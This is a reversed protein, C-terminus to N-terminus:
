TAARQHVQTNLHNNFFRAHRLFSLPTYDTELFDIGCAWLWDSNAYIGSKSRHAEIFEKRGIGKDYKHYGRGTIPFSCPQKENLYFRNGKKSVTHSMVYFHCHKCFIRKEDQNFFIPDDPHTFSSFSDTYNRMRVLSEQTERLMRENPSENSRVLKELSPLIASLREIPDNNSVRPNHYGAKAAKASKMFPNEMASMPRKLFVSYLGNSVGGLDVNPSKGRFNPSKGKPSWNQLRSATWTGPLKCHFGGVDLLGLMWLQLDMGIKRKTSCFYGKEHANSDTHKKQKSPKNWTKGISRNLIIMLRHSTLAASPDETISKVVCVMCLSGKEPISNMSNVAEEITLSPNEKLFCTREPTTFSLWVLRTATFDSSEVM